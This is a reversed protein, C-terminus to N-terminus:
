GGGAGVRLAALVEATDAGMKSCVQQDM